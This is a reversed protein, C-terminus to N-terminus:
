LASVQRRKAMQNLVQWTTVIVLLLGIGVFLTGLVASGQIPPSDPENWRLAIPRNILENTVKSWPFTTRAQEYTILTVGDPACLITSIAPSGYSFFIQREQTAPNIQFTVSWRLATTAGGNGQYLRVVANDQPAQCQTILVEDQPNGYANRNPALLSGGVVLAVIALIGLTLTLCGRM